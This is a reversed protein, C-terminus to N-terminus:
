YHEELAGSFGENQPLLILAIAYDARCVDGAQDIKLFGEFVVQTLHLFKREYLLHYLQLLDGSIRKM